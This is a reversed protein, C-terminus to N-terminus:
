FRMERASHEREYRRKERAREGRRRGTSINEDVFPKM